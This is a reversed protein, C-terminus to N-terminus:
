FNLWLIIGKKYREAVTLNKITEWKKIKFSNGANSYKFNLNIFRPNGDNNLSIFVIEYGNLYKFGRIIIALHNSIIKKDMIIKKKTNIKLYITNSRETLTYPKLQVTQLAPQIEVPKNQKLNIRNIKKNNLKIADLKKSHKLKIAMSKKNIKTIGLMNKPIYLTKRKKHKINNIINATTLPPISLIAFMEGNLKNAQTKTLHKNIANNNYACGSATIIIFLIGAFMILFDIHKFNVISNKIKKLEM